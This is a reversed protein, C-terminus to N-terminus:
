EQRPRLVECLRDIEQRDEITHPVRIFRYNIWNALIGDIKRITVWWEPELHERQQTRSPVPSYQKRVEWGSKREVFYGLRDEVPQFRASVELVMDGPRLQEESVSIWQHAARTYVTANGIGALSWATLACQEIAGLAAHLSEDSM